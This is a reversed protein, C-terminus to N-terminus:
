IPAPLTNSDRKRQFIALVENIITQIWDGGLNSMLCSWFDNVRRHSDHDRHPMSRTDRTKLQSLPRNMLFHCDHEFTLIKRNAISYGVAVM